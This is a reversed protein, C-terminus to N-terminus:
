AKRYEVWYWPSEATGEQPDRERVWVYGDAATPEDPGYNVRGTREMVSAGMLEPMMKGCVTVATPDSM